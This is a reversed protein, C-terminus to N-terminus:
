KARLREFFYRNVGVKQNKFFVVSTSEIRYEYVVYLMEDNSIAMSTKTELESYTGDVYSLESQSIELWGDICNASVSFSSSPHAPDISKGNLRVNLVSKDAVFELIISETVGQIPLRSLVAGDFVVTVNNSTKGTNLYEGNILSCDHNQLFQKARNNSYNERAGESPTVLCSSVLLSAFVLLTPLKTQFWM